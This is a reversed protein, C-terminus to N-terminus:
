FVAKIVKEVEKLQRIEEDLKMIEPSKKVEEQIQKIDEITIKPIKIGSLIEDINM